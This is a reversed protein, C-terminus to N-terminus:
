ANLKNELQQLEAEWEDVKELKSAKNDRRIYRKLNEIRKVIDTTSTYEKAKVAQNKRENGHKIFYEKRANVEDLLDGIEEIRKAARYVEEQPKGEVLSNTFLARREDLLETFEAKYGILVPHKENISKPSINKQPQPAITLIKVPTQKEKETLPKQNKVLKALEYKLKKSNEKKSLLSALRPLRGTKIFLTLGIQYDVPDILWLQISKILELKM